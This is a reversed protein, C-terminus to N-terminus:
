KSYVEIVKPPIQMEDDGYSGGKSVDKNSDNPHKAEWAAIKQM